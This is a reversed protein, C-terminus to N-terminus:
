IDQNISIEKIIWVIIKQPKQEFEAFKPHISYDSAELVGRPYAIYLYLCIITWTSSFYFWNCHQLSSMSRYTHFFNKSWCQTARGFIEMCSSCYKLLYFMLFNHLLILAITNQFFKGNSNIAEENGWCTM